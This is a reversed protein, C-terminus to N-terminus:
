IGYPSELIYDWNQLEEMCEPSTRVVTYALLAADHTDLYFNLVLYYFISCQFKKM